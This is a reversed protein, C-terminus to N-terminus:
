GVSKLSICRADAALVRAAPALALLAVAVMFKLKGQSM